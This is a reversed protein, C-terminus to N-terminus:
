CRVTGRWEPGAQHLKDRDGRDLQVLVHPSEAHVLRHRRPVASDYHQRGVPLSRNLLVMLRLMYRCRPAEPVRVQLDDVLLEFVM